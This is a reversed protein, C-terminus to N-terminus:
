VDVLVMKLQNSINDVAPADPTKKYLYNSLISTAPALLSLNGSVAYPKSLDSVNFHPQLTKFENAMMADLLITFNLEDGDYDANPAKAILASFAITKDGADTKFKTIRCLQSSGQLLSPNRQALVAISGGPSEALLENLIVDIVKDYKNVVRFLLKNAKKYTFGRKILKNLIHPRFATVGIAWPVHIEDYEHRGSISVIVGRFTFHSRSGYIHKRFMGVKGSIYNRFYDDYLSSLKSLITATYNSKKRESMLPDGSAKVWMMVLDIMDSVALNTFKGKSTNEMVFLKKNVIPLYKSYITKKARKYEDILIRMNIINGPEKFKSHNAMYVLIDEMRNVVNKYSREGILEHMGSLYNPIEVPPNYSTDCLWRMCDLNKAMMTRLMLWLQPNMMGPMGDLAQIWLLPDQKKHPDTVLTGCEVCTKGLLYRGEMAKCDCCPVTSIVEEDYVTMLSGNVTEIDDISYFNLDNLIIKDGTTSRYYGDMDLFKQIVPM